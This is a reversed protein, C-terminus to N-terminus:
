QVRVCHAVFGALCKPQLDRPIRLYLILEREFVSAMSDMIMDTHVGVLLKSYASLLEDMEELSVEKTAAQLLGERLTDLETMLLERSAQNLVVKTRLGLTERDMSDDM